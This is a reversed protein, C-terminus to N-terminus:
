LAVVRSFLARSSFALSELGHRMDPSRIFAQTLWPADSLDDEFTLLLM